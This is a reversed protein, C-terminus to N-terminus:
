SISRVRGISAFHDRTLEADELYAGPLLSCLGGCERTHPKHCAFMTRNHREFVMFATRTPHYGGVGPPYWTCQVGMVLCLQRLATSWKDLVRHDCFPESTVIDGVGVWACDHDILDRSPLFLEESVQRYKAPPHSRRRHSLRWAGGAVAHYMELVRHTGDCEQERLQRVYCDDNRM